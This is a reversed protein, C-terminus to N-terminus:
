RTERACKKTLDLNTDCCGWGVPCQPGCACASHPTGACRRSGHFDVCCPTEAPCTQCSGCFVRDTDLDACSVGNCCAVNRGTKQRIEDCSYCGPDLLGKIGDSWESCFPCCHSNSCLHNSGFTENGSKTCNHGGQMTCDCNCQGCNLSSSQFVPPEWCTSHNCCQTTERAGDKDFTGTPYFACYIQCGGCNNVDTAPNVCRFRSPPGGDWNQPCCAEQQSCAFAAGCGGCNDQTKVCRGDCCTEESGCPLSCPGCIEVDVCQGSCCKHDCHNGCAGCNNVDNDLDICYGRDGRCHDRRSLVHGETDVINGCQMAACGGPIGPTGPYCFADPGCDDGCQACNENTGICAGGSCSCVPSVAPSWWPLIRRGWPPVTCASALMLALLVPLTRLSLDLQGFQKM